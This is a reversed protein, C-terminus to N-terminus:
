SVALLTKESYHLLGMTEDSLSFEEWSRLKYILSLYYGEYGEILLLMYIIFLWSLQLLSSSVLSGLDMTNEVLFWTAGYFTAM